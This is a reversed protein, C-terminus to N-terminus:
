KDVYLKRLGVGYDFTTQRGIDTLEGLLCEGEASTGDFREVVKMMNLHDEGAAGSVAARFRRANKCMMWHEPISAPPGAMRVGVPTREGHRVYIHVQELALEPPAVPYGDM